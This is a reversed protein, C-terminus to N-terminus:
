VELDKQIVRMSKLAEERLKLALSKFTKGTETDQTEPAIDALPIMIFAQNQYDPQPLIDIDITRAAFKNEPDRGRGLAAEIERLKETLNKRSLGSEIEVALNWFKQPGAPGVPATEYAPSIKLVELKEKLLKLGAPINKNPEINSGLSLFVSSM